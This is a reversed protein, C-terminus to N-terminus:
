KLVVFNEGSLSPLDDASNKAKSLWIFDPM